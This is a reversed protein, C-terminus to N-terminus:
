PWLAVRLLRWSVCRRLDDGALVHDSSELRLALHRHEVKATQHFRRLLDAHPVFQPLRTLAETIEAQSYRNAPLAGQVAAVISAPGQSSRGFSTSKM